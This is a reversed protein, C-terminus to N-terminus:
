VHRNYRAFPAATPLVLFRVILFTTLDELVRPYTHPLFAKCCLDVLEEDSVHKGGPQARKKTGRQSGKQQGVVAGSDDFMSLIVARVDDRQLSEKLMATFGVMALQDMAICHLCAKSANNAAILHRHTRVLRLLALWTCCMDIDWRNHLCQESVRVRTNHLM